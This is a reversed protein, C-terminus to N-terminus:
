VEVLDEELVDLHGDLVDEALDALAPADRHRRQEVLAAREPERQGARELHGHALEDRQGLLAAEGVRAQAVEDRTLPDLELGELERVVARQRLEDLGADGAGLARDRLEVPRLLVLPQRLERELDVAGLVAVAPPAVLLEARAAVRDLRTRRLDEAVDDGLADEAERPRSSIRM